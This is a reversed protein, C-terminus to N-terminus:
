HHTHNERIVTNIQEASNKYGKKTLHINDIYETVTLPIVTVNDYQNALIHLLSNFKKLVPCPEKSYLECLYIEAKLNQNILKEINEIVMIPSVPLIFRPHYGKLDHTGTDIVIIDWNGDIKINNTHQSGVAIDRCNNKKDCKTQNGIGEMISDGAYLKSPSRGFIMQPHSLVTLLICLILLQKKILNLSM